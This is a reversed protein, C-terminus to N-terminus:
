QVEYSGASLKKNVLTAVEKGLVDYVKLTVVESSAVEFKIVTKPNFPNPYNQSLSCKGPLNNGGTNPISTIIDYKKLWAQTTDTQFFSRGLIYLYGNSDFEVCNVQNLKANTFEVVKFSKLSDGNALNRIHIYGIKNATHFLSDKDIEAGLVVQKKLMNVTLDNIWNEM